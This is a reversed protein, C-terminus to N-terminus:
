RDPLKRASSIGAHTLQQYSSRPRERACEQVTFHVFQVYDDVVEVIPGCIRILDTVAVVRGDGGIGQRSIVLAQELERLTLPTPCCGIWGLLNRAKTKLSTNRDNIRSLIRAYSVLSNASTRPLRTPILRM